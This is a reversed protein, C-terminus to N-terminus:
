GARRAMFGNVLSRLALSDFPKDLRPNTVGDLFERALPTFAGGTVFVVRAAQEPYDRELLRFFDMGSIQPMMLDCLVVDYRAGSALLDLAAQANDVTTVDHDRGLVRGIAVTVLHDDDVTLVRARQATSVSPSADAIPPAVAAPAPPLLVCFATGRGLESEVTIEGGFSHVIRQCIALGLGTGVGAPKTTFFPTFLDARLERPIGPGTDSFRIAVRGREDVSTRIGIRHHRANGEPIAQAANVVLNLFVQGLRSEDATVPPIDGYEKVLEARHRVENWALRLTSELVDHVNM